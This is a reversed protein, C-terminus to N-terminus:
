RVISASIRDAQGVFQTRRARLDLRQADRAAHSFMVRVQNRQSPFFLLQRALELFLPCPIGVVDLHVGHLFLGVPCHDGHIGPDGNSRLDLVLSTMGEAELDRLSAQLEDRSNRSFSSLRVYGTDDFMGSYSVSKVKIEERVLNYEIPDELGPRNVKFTVTSGPEGRLYRVARQVQWGDTREGEIEVIQDGTQMGARFAPTGEIPSIVTPHNDRFSIFIGLGGFQGQTSLMLDEYDLGSLFQSHPDLEKLMNEIAKTMLEHTDIDDVYYLKVKQIVKSFIELDHLVSDRSQKSKAWSGLAAFSFVVLLLAVVARRKSLFKM